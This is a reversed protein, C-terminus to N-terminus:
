GILRIQIPWNGVEGCSPPPLPSLLFAVSFPERIGRIGKISNEEPMPFNDTKKLKLQKRDMDETFLYVGQYQGNLVVEVYRTRITSNADPELDAYYLKHLKLWLDHSIKNNLRLKENYMALLLWTKDSRM